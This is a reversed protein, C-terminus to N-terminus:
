LNDQIIDIIEHYVQDYVDLGFLFDIHNYYSITKYYIHNTIESHLIKVDEPDALLDSEGNWIATAVNMNTVNYFPSTTQNYHVLNLDPSGWDYAKLHTSNLLMNLNKSDYGFMMFLINLCIKDFIQLPCLKSGVFKKFSTKPLFEKNGSFAKVISKWKYTMRVLPSKLYKTSFVPALAFFIKIREAIKPITSFTIFGITTGQSHGVYFIEEQRTQKVIFDISAPLDYKAMEDFSFAWFEKSNTELYLHKRSWTNGRSNGMWVDYGADALIFGLSNNPLNSIWSSASTLLGHQLYVVVRQALNKNNDTRGYPIRYLGLIYGDETVIDYEEDPYGWYSIIQSINMDAEPNASRQNQFVGHTIRLIRIFYMMTFLYWMQSREAKTSKLHGIYTDEFYDIM